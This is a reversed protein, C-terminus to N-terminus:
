KMVIKLTKSLHGRLIRLRRKAGEPQPFLLSSYPTFTQNIVQLKAEGEEAERCTKKPRYPTEKLWLGRQGDMYTLLLWKLNLIMREDTEM